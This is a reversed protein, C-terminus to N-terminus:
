KKQSALRNLTHYWHPRGTYNLLIVGVLTHFTKKWQSGSDPNWFTWNLGLFHKIKPLVLTAVFCLYNKLVSEYYYQEANAMVNVCFYHFFIVFFYFFYFFNGFMHHETLIIVLSRFINCLGPKGYILWTFCEPATIIVLIICSHNFTKGKMITGM